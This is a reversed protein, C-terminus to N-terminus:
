LAARAPLMLGMIYWNSTMILAARAPVMILIISNASTAWERSQQTIIPKIRDARAANFGYRTGRRMIITRLDM